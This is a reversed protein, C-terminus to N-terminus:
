SAVEQSEAPGWHLYLFVLGSAINELWIKGQRFSIYPCLHLLSQLFSWGSIWEVKFRDGPSAGIGPM